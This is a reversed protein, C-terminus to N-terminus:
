NVAPGHVMVTPFGMERLEQEMKAANDIDSFAGVRVRFLGDGSVLYAPFGEAKLEELQQEALSRIRYAGTQIMYFQEEEEQQRIVNLIGTAIANAIEDFQADFRANDEPNDIFGAEVLVAPIQTRRLVVLGPREFTGLDTFGTKALERNISSALEKALGEERYVLTMTGSGTGPEAAANRHISVFFDADAANAMDAKEYPSDYVDTVRTFIVEVGNNELIDGVALALRLNDDKEQRGEFVAGPDYEGGHGADIVVRKRIDM